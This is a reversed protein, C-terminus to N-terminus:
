KLSYLANQADTRIRVQDTDRILAELIGRFESRDAENMKSALSTIARLTNTLTYFHEFQEKATAPTKSILAQKFVPLGDTNQQRALAVAAHVSTLLDGNTLLAHLQQDAEPSKFFGLTYAATQRMEPATDTSLQVLADVTEPDNLPAGRTVARDAIIAISAVASKRIEVDQTPELALRLPPLCLDPLELMGLGRTLYLQFAVSDQSKSGLKLERNLLDTMLTVLKLNTSLHQGRDGLKQDNTLVGALSYMARTRVHNNPSQLEEVLSEWNQESIAIRGFLAWVAVVALVILGPVVFLQIIFGASPPQVPPLDDSLEPHVTNLPTASETSNSMSFGDASFQAPSNLSPSLASIIDLELPSKLGRRSKAVELM